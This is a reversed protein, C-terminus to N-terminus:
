YMRKPDWGFSILKVLIIASKSVKNKFSEFKENRNM